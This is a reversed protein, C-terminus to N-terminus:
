QTRQNPAPSTGPPTAENNPPASAPPIRQVGGQVAGNADRPANMMTGGQPMGNQLPPLAPASVDPLGIVADPRALTQIGRIYEYRDGSVNMSQENTRIVTPRLFVMLNTKARSRKRYKFLNGVVPVDGLVPVKENSYQENDDILGGLVILKGDDVLM